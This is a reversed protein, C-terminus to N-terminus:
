PVVCCGCSALSLFLGVRVFPLVIFGFVMKSGGLLSRATAVYGQLKM